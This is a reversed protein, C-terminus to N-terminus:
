RLLCTHAALSSPLLLLMAVCRQKVHRCVAEKSGQAYLARRTCWCQLMLVQAAAKCAQQEDCGSDASNKQERERM